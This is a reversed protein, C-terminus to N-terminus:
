QALPDIFAKYLLRERDPANAMHDVIVSLCDEQIYPNSRRLLRRFDPDTAAAIVAKVAELNPAADIVNDARLRGDQRAGINVVPLAFSPAEILGSSSNGIMLTAAAMAAYYVDGGMADVLIIGPREAALAHLAALLVGGGIDPNPATAVVRLGLDAAHRLADCFLDAQAREDLPDFSSVHFTALAFHEDSGLGLERRAQPDLPAVQALRTLGPEGCVAIRWPEEGIRTLRERHEPLAVLHRHALASIAYRTQNDASGQTVDGGSHHLIPIRMAAAVSAPALLEWRDGLLFVEDLEAQAFYSAFIDAARALAGGMAARTDDEEHLFAAEFDIPFAARIREIERGFRSLLHSGGAIVRADVKPHALAAAM